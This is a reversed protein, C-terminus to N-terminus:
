QHVDVLVIKYMNIVLYHCNSSISISKFVFSLWFSSSLHLDIAVACYCSAILLLLLNFLILLWYKQSLNGAHSLLFSYFASTSLSIISRTIFCSYYIRIYNSGNATLYYGNVLALSSIKFHVKEIYM